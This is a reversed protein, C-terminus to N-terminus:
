TGGYSFLSFIVMLTVGVIAIVAALGWNHWKAQAAGSVFIEATTVDSLPYKMLRRPMHGTQYWTYVFSSDVTEIDLELCEGDDFCLRVRKDKFEEESGVFESYPIERWEGDPFVADVGEETAVWVLGGCGACIFVGWVVLSSRLHKALSRFATIRTIRRIKEGGNVVNWCTKRGM